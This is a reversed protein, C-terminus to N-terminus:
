VDEVKMMHIEYPDVSLGISEGVEYTEYTNVMLKVGNVDVDLENHVGKFLSFTVTGKIKAKELDVVDFDEPRIVVDVAEGDNFTYGMCKFDTGLFHVVDKKVYTGPIINTEGIFNAVYRNVPENYISKPTGLQQILGDKMVVIRDSMTMAEEQDHTVFIFTIGLKLQMEKLEYQMAQRLKLDLAALPEDLLLIQPKNVLARALAVRQQQGGSIQDIKRKEYGSLKVLALADKAAQEILKDFVKNLKSASKKQDKGFMDNFTLNVKEEGFFKLLYEHNRNALGFAVNGIVNLHPFLAYRQFVTHIPRAYPPLDNFVKGNIVIKGEDPQVFGGIMRLTTTKGCGSPGLLTVFENEYITLNLNDVVTEGDYSKTVNILEILPKKHM